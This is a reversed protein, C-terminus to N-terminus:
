RAFIDGGATDNAVIVPFDKVELKYIAEPGLDEFATVEGSKVKSGLLAAAGGTAVLYVAGYNKISAKVHKARDGKGIFAKVGLELMMPTHPDMRSSTTPGCSGVPMCPNKGSPGCYFIVSNQFNVPPKQGKVILAAIRAHAADRATYITGSLLLKEGAKLEKRNAILKEVTLEKMDFTLYIGM